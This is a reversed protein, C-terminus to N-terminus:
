FVPEDADDFHMMFDDDELYEEEDGDIPEEEEELLEKEDEQMVDGKKNEKEELEELTAHEDMNLIESLNLQTDLDEDIEETKTAKKLRKKGQLVAGEEQKTPEDKLKTKKSRPSKEESETRKRKNKQPTTAEKTSKKGRTEQYSHIYTYCSFSCVKLKLM